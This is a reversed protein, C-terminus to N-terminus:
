ALSRALVETEDFRPPGQLDGRSTARNGQEHWQAAGAM